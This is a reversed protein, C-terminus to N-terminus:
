FIYKVLHIGHTSVYCVLGFMLICSSGKVAKRTTLVTSVKIDYPKQRQGPRSFKTSTHQIQMNSGYCFTQVFSSFPSMSFNNQTTCVCAPHNTFFFPAHAWNNRQSRGGIKAAAFHEEQGNRLLMNALSSTHILFIDDYKCVGESAMRFVSYSPICGFWNQAGPIAAKERWSNKADSILTHLRATRQCPCGQWSGQKREWCRIALAQLSVPLKQQM